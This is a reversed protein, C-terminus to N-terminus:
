PLALTCAEFALLSENMMSESPLPCDGRWLETFCTLQDEEFSMEDSQYVIAGNISLDLRAGGELTLESGEGMYVAVPSSISSDLDGETESEITIGAAKIKGGELYLGYSNRHRLTLGTADLSAGEAIYMMAGEPRRDEYLVNVLIFEGRNIVSATASLQEAEGESLVSELQANTIELTAMAENIILAGEGMLKSDGLKVMAGSNLHMLPRDLQTAKLDSESIYSNGNSLNFKARAQLQDIALDGNHSVIELSGPQQYGGAVHDLILLTENEGGDSGEDGLEIQLNVFLHDKLRLHGKSLELRGDMLGKEMFLSPTFETHLLIVDGKLHSSSISHTGGGNIKILQKSDGMSKAYTHNIFLDLPGPSLDPVASMPFVNAWSMWEYDNSRQSSTLDILSQGTFSSYSITLPASLDDEDISATDTLNVEARVLTNIDDAIINKLNIITNPEGNVMQQQCSNLYAGNIYVKAGQRVEIMSSGCSEATPSVSFLNNINLGAGNVVFAQGATIILVNDLSLDM